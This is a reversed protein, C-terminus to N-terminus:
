GGNSKAFIAQVPRLSGLAEVIVPEMRDTAEKTIYTLYRASFAFIIALRMTAAKEYWSLIVEKQFKIEAPLISHTGANGRVFESCERYVKEAIASYQKASDSFDPNFAQIFNVSFVGSQADKLASWNIDKSDKLWMRYDIEHASFQITALMLEFFLRLGGFAHRYQGLTLAFLAFQYEKVATEFVAVEPRGIIAMKIVDFDLIYNHAAILAERADQAEVIKELVGDANKKLNKYYEIVDM